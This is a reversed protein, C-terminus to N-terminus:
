EDAKKGTEQGAYYRSMDKINNIDMQKFGRAGELTPKVPESGEEDNM